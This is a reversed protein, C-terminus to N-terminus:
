SGDLDQLLLDNCEYIYGIKGLSVVYLYTKNLNKKLQKFINTLIVLNLIIYQFLTQINRLFSKSIFVNLNRDFCSYSKSKDCM